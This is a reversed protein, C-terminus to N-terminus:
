TADGAKLQGTALEILEARSAVALKRFINNLHVKTTGASVQLRFAVQKSSAGAVILGIIQRERRTLAPAREQWRRRRLGERQLADEVLAAPFWDRGAAVERLCYMLTEPASEKLVLGAAGNCVADFIQADSITAALLVVRTGLAQQRMDLLVELGSLGPMDLDLIAIDPAKLRVAELIDRGTPATAVVSFGADGAILSLLGRLLIPHDDAIAVRAIM